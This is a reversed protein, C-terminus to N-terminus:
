CMSLVFALHSGEEQLSRGIVTEITTGTRAVLRPALDAREPIRSPEGLDSDCGIRVDAGAKTDRVVRLGGALLKKAAADVEGLIEIVRASL